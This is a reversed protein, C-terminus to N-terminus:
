LGEEALINLVEKQVEQALIRGNEAALYYRGNNMDQNIRGEFRASLDM